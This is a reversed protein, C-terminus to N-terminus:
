TRPCDRINLLQSKRAKYLRVVMSEGEEAQNDHQKLMPRCVCFCVYLCGTNMFGVGCDNRELAPWLASFWVLQTFLPELRTSGRYIWEYRQECDFYMKVLSCDVEHVRALWRHAVYYLV